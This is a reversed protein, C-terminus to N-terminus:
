QANSKKKELRNYQVFQFTNPLPPIVYHVVEIHWFCCINM